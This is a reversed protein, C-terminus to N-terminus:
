RRESQKTDEKTTSDPLPIPFIFGVCASLLLVAMAAAILKLRRM